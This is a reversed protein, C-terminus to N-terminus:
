VDIILTDSTRTAFISWLMFSHFIEVSFISILYSKLWIFISSIFVRTVFILIAKSLNMLLSLVTFFAATFIFTLWYFTNLSCVCPFSIFFPVSSKLAIPCYWNLKDVFLLFALISFISSFVIFSFKKLVSLLCCFMSGVQGSFILLIFIRCLCMANLDRIVLFDQLCRSIFLCIVHIPVLIPPVLIPIVIFMEDYSLMCLCHFLLKSLLM